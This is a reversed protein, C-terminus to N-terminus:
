FIGKRASLGYEILGEIAGTVQKVKADIAADEDDHPGEFRMAEGFHVHFKVPLPVPLPTIPFYPMGLLRAGRKWNYLSIISEEGGIVACPVIPTRTQLALRMFGRGFQQLEYRRDWTKGSGKVGEPFVVIVQDDLLLNRCNTPDGLVAGCRVFLENVFPIKPFWREVMARVLRPPKAHLLCALAIVMGDIPLQGSHNPVILVRGEPLNELGTVEPRFYPTFFRKGASYWVKSEEKHFGWADYGLENVKNPLSDIAAAIEPDVLLSARVAM